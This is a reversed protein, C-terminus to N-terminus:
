SPDRASFGWAPGQAETEGDTFSWCPGSHKAVAKYTRSTQQRDEEGLQFQLALPCCSSRTLFLTRKVGHPEAPRLGAQAAPVASAYCPLPMVPCWREQTKTRVELFSRKDRDGWKQEHGWCLDKWLGQSALRYGDMEGDWGWGVGWCLLHAETGAKAEQM